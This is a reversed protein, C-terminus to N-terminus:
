VLRVWFLKSNMSRNWCYISSMRVCSLMLNSSAMWCALFYMFGYLCVYRSSTCFAAPKSANVGPCSGEEYLTVRVGREIRLFYSISVLGCSRNLWHRHFSRALTNVWVWLARRARGETGRIWMARDAPREARFVGDHWEAWRDEDAVGDAEDDM